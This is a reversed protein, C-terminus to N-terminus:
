EMGQGGGPYCKAEASQLPIPGCTSSAVEITQNLDSKIPFDTVELARPPTTKLFVQVGLPGCSSTYYITRTVQCRNILAQAESWSVQTTTSSLGIVTTTSKTSTAQVPTSTTTIGSTLSPTTSVSSSSPATSTSASGVEQTPAQSASHFYLYGATGLVLIGVAILAVVTLSSFGKQTHM